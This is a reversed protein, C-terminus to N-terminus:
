KHNDRRLCRCQYSVVCSSCNYTKLDGLAICAQIWHQRYLTAPHHLISPPVPDRQPELIAYWHLHRLRASESRTWLAATAVAWCSDRNQRSGCLMDCLKAQDAIVSWTLCLMWESEVINYLGCIMLCLTQGLLAYRRDQSWMLPLGLVAYPRGLDWLLM